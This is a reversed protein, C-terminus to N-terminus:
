GAGYFTDILSSCSQSFKRQHLSCQTVLHMKGVPWVNRAVKEKGERLEGEGLVWGESVCPMAAMLPERVSCLSSWLAARYQGEGDVGGQHASKGPLVKGQASSCRRSSVNRCFVQRDMVSRHEEEMKAAKTNQLVIGHTPSLLAQVQHKVPYCVALHLHEQFALLRM